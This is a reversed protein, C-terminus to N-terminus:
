LDGVADPKGSLNITKEDTPREVVTLREGAQVSTASLLLAAAAATAALVCHKNTNM